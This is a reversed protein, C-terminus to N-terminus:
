GEASMREKIFFPGFEVARFSREYRYIKYGLGLCEYTTGDAYVHTEERLCFKPNENNKAKFYDFLVTAVWVVILILVLVKLVTLIQKKM